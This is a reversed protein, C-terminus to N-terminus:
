LPADLDICSTIFERGDDTRVHCIRKPTGPDMLSQPEYAVVTGLVQTLSRGYVVREGIKPLWMPTGHKNFGKTPIMPIPQGDRHLVDKWILPRGCGHKGPLRRKEGDYFTQKCYECHLMKVTFDDFTDKSQTM